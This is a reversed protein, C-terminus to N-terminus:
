RKKLAAELFDLAAAWSRSDAKENYAVGKSPDNGAEKQTFAHVAGSYMTLMWDAGANNMEQTFAQVEEHPVMPDDAGHHVQIAAKVIGKETVPAKTSLGGHFSIAAAIDAGSRALELAMTGGFCYGIIAIRSDDVGSLTKVYDLAANLRRRALAPDDKYKTAETWAEQDTTPRVGKGYMDIAFANYGAKALMDARMKENDSLGKWQHVILVTPAAANDAVGEAKAFYGELTASGDNYTLTEGAFAPISMFLVLAFSLARLM